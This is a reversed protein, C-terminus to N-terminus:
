VRGSTCFQSAFVSVDMVRARAGTEEDFDPLDSKDICNAAMMQKLEWKEPSSIRKVAKHRTELESEPVSVLPMTSPRDPNRAAAEADSGAMRAQREPNLNEGTVQDVDQLFTLAMQLTLHFGFSHLQM